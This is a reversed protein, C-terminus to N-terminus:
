SQDQLAALDVLPPGAPTATRQPAAAQQMANLASPETTNFGSAHEYARV